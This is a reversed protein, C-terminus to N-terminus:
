EFTYGDFTLKTILLQRCLSSKQGGALQKSVQGLTVASEFRVPALKGTGNWYMAYGEISAIDGTKLIDLGKQVNYSAAISHNNSINQDVNAYVFAPCHGDYMTLLMRYEHDFTFCEPHFAPQGTALSIDQPVIKDYLRSSESSRYWTGFSNYRDVYVIRATTQFSKIAQIEIDYGNVHIPLIKQEPLEQFTDVDSIQLVSSNPTGYLM